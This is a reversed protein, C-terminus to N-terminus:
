HSIALHTEVLHLLNAIEVPKTVVEDVVCDGVQARTTSNKDVLLIVPVNLAKILQKCVDYENFAPMDPNVILLGPRHRLSVPILETADNIAELSMGEEELSNKIQEFHDDKFDCLLVLGRNEM